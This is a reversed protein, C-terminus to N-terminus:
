QRIVKFVSADSYVESEGKGTGEGADMGLVTGGCSSEMSGAYPEGGPTTPGM